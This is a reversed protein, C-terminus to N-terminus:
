VPSMFLFSNSDHHCTYVIFQPLQLSKEHFVFESAAHLSISPWM